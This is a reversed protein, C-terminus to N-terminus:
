EKRTFASGRLNGTDVPVIKQSERQIRLAAMYCAQQLKVNKAAAQSIIRRLEGTNALTRAPSVLYQAQKGPKHRAELNEHVHVAYAATYGTIVSEGKVADPHEMFKALTQKLARKVEKVGEIKM